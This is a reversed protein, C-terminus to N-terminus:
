LVNLLPQGGRLSLLAYARAKRLTIRGYERRLEDLLKQEPLTPKAQQSLDRLQVQENEPMIM